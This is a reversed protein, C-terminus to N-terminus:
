GREPTSFGVGWEESVGTGHTHETVPRGVRFVEGSVRSMCIRKEHSEQGLQASNDVLRAVAKDSRSATHTWECLASMRM